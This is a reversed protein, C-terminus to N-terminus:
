FRCITSFMFQHTTVDARTRSVGSLLDGMVNNGHRLTYAGDFALRKWVIGSGLSFGFYDDSGGGAPLPDYFLGGRVPVIFKKLMFLYEAGARVTHTAGVDAQDASTGTFPSTEITEGTVPDTQIIVFDGWEVRTVDLSATWRDSVRYSLGLGFVWPFDIKVEEQFHEGEPERDTVNLTWDLQRDAEARFPTKVVAGVQLGRWINWLMGVTVNVGLFGSFKEDREFRVSFPTSEEDPSDTVEGSGETRTHSEWARDSFFPDMWINVAFGFSLKTTIQIGYAPSVAYLSGRQEFDLQQQLELIPPRNQSVQFSLNRKFDLMQQYNLSAVMHRNLLTFPYALSFYNLSATTTSNSVDGWARPDDSFDEIRQFVAGVASIEPRELQFLGGPNWSAATADDAIAIFANGFGAARAGSGVPSPSSAITIIPVSIEQAQIQSPILLAFLGL